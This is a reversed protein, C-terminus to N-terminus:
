QNKHWNLIPNTKNVNSLLETIPSDFKGPRIVLSILTRFNEAKSHITQKVVLVQVGQM